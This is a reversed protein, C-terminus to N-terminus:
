QNLYAEIREKLIKSVEEGSMKGRLDKMIVGMLPGVARLGQERVFESREVVLQEILEDISDREAGGFQFEALVERLSQTPYETIKKLFDEIAENPINGRANERFLEILEETTIVDTNHGIKGLEELTTHLTRIIISPKAEPVARMITEFVGVYESQTIVRALEENLNYEDKFREKKETLLEPISIEGLYEDTIAVPPIDTEPYMRAAGPLPRMYASGGDPLIRRTEEPVGSIAVRARDMVAEIAGMARSRKGDQSQRSTKWGNTPRDAVLVICDNVDAGLADKLGEVEEETIGYLPLEDTHFIGGVGSKKAHDSFESGLRRSPQLERGVLGGFGELRVALIVGGAGLTHKLVRSATELFLDTVDVIETKVRANRKLLEGRVKLLNVQREVEREVIVPLLDLEQVGKMEVRAGDAISINVDQRITGLGRKVRGTSRLLMGIYAAVDYAQRPTRIDPATGIEVLPIGLRDLSYTVSESDEEIKQAAEEEICLVDIGVRYGLDIFGNTAVIATRQFGATNSGDVVIKRMTHFEDVSQMRLMKALTFVIRVADRNLKRPPEEDNEVLCTSDYARYICKRQIKVEEAAARDVEGMESPAARLYRSFELNSESTDRLLTPCNCFLKERTDLQQHIEIGCKLGLSHYDM